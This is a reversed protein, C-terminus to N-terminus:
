QHFFACHRATGVLRSRRYQRLGLRSQQAVAVGNTPSPAHKRVRQRDHHVLQLLMERVSIARWRDHRLNHEPVDRLADRSGGRAHHRTFNEGERHHVDAFLFRELIDGGILAVVGSQADDILIRGDKQIEMNEDDRRM